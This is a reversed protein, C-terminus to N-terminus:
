NRAAYKYAIDSYILTHTNDPCTGKNLLCWVSTPNTELNLLAGDEDTMNSHLKRMYEVANQDTLQRHRDNIRRQEETIPIPSAQLGALLLCMLGSCLLLKSNTTEM